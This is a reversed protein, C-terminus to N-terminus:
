LSAHKRSGASTSLIDTFASWTKYSDMRPTFCLQISHPNWKLALTKSGGYLCCAQQATLLYAIMYLPHWFGNQVQVANTLFM